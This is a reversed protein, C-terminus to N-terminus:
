QGEPNGADVMVPQGVVSPQEQNVRPLTIVGKEQKPPVLAYVVVVNPPTYAGPAPPPSYARPQMKM